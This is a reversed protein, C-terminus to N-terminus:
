RSICNSQSKELLSVLLSEKFTALRGFGTNVDSTDAIVAVNGGKVLGFTRKSGALCFKIRETYSKILRFYKVSSYCSILIQVKHDIPKDMYHLYAHIM